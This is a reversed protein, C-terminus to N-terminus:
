DNKKIQNKSNKQINSIRYQKIRVYSLPHKIERQTDYKRSFYGELCLEDKYKKAMCLSYSKLSQCSYPIYGKKKAYQVQYATKEKNFDPLTSFINIIKDEPYNLSNLFWVIYLRETHILNQGEQAKKLTEKVCPPYSGSIEKLSKFDLEFSYEFEEEKLAWENSIIEHMEKFEEVKLVESKFADLTTKDVEQKLILKQRVYEQLLRIINRKQIFVYGESLPNNVLRRYEDRMNASLKLYDIYNIRFNTELIERQDKIIRIGYEIPLQYYKIDLNLDMCIDYIYADSENILEEYTIKSYLNAIRNTIVPNNLTYLLIKLILYCHINLQDVKYDMIQELNEFAARFIILIREQIETPSYKKFTETIFEIPDQSAISSFVINLSPLWPYHYILEMQISM